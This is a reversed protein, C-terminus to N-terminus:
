SGVENIRLPEAEDFLRELRKRLDDSAPLKIMVSAREGIANLSNGSLWVDGDIVLFRDHLPPAKGGLMIKIQPEPMGRQRFSALVSAFSSAIDTAKKFPLRSTLLKLRLDRRTAFHGFDFLDKGDAFPDIIMVTERARGILDRIFRQAHDRSDFWQLQQQRVLRDRRRRDASEYFRSAPDRPRHLDPELGILSRQSEGIEPVEHVAKDANKSRSTTTELKVRRSTTSMELSITRLYPLAEQREVLGRERHSLTYGTSELQGESKIIMLSGDVEFTKFLHIAGFREEFLTLALGDLPHGIRPLVEGVLHERRQGDRAMFSRVGRVNPDPVILVAGGLLEAHRTIDFHIRRKLWLIAKPDELLRDLLPQSSALQRHIRAPHAGSGIFPTPYFDDGTGFVSQDAVPTSLSPWVPEDNFASSKLATGDFRGKDADLVPIPLIPSTRLSRYWDVAAQASMAICRFALNSGSNPSPLLDPRGKSDVQMTDPIPRSTTILEVSAFLLTPSEGSQGDWVTALRVIAAHYADVVLPQTRDDTMRDKM